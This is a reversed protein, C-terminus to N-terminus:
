EPRTVFAFSYPSALTSGHLDQMAGSITVTYKTNPALPANPEFSVSTNDSWIFQGNAAPVISWAQALTSRVIYTSFSLYVRLNTSFDVFVQGNSPSTGRIAVAETGFSFEFPGALPTGDLDRATADIHVTYTTLARLPGGTYLVLDNDAPWLFIPVTAPTITLANEVSARDMRRPFTIRLSSSGLLSVNRAGDEPQTQITRLSSGSQITRFSFRLPFRMEHRTSDRAASSLTVVYTSDVFTDRLRPIFRLSRINRFTTIEGGPAVDQYGPPPAATDRAGTYDTGTAPPHQSWYFVGTTPPDTSFAAEVSARDMPVVFDIGIALRNGYSYMVVESRDGPAFSRVPDPTTSLVIAGVYSVSGAYVAIRELREIRRNDARIVLDYTGPRLGAVLFAGTGPDITTSDVPGTQEVIVRAGSTAPDVRGVINGTTSGPGGPGVNTVQQVDTCSAALLSLAVCLFVWRIFTTPKM